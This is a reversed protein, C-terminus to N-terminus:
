RRQTRGIQPDLEAHGVRGRICGEAHSWRVQVTAPELNAATRRRVTLVTLAVPIATIAADGDELFRCWARRIRLPRRVCRTRRVCWRLRKCRPRRRIRRPWGGDGICRPRRICRLRRGGSRLRWGTATTIVAAHVTLDRQDCSFLGRSLLSDP